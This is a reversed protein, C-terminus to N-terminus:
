RVVDTGVTLLEKQVNRLTRLRQQKQLPERRKRRLSLLPRRQDVETRFDSVGYRPRVDEAEAHDEVLHQRAPLGEVTVRSNLQHVRDQFFFVDRLEVLVRPNRRREVFGHAAAEVLPRRVAKKSFEGDARSALYVTGMGGQGLLRELQWAGARRGSLDPEANM